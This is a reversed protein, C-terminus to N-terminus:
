APIGRLPLCAIIWFFCLDLASKYAQCNQLILLFEPSFRQNIVMMLQDIMRVKLFILNRKKQTLVCVCLELRIWREKIDRKDFDEILHFLYLRKLLPLLFCNKSLTMQERFISCNFGSTVGSRVIIFICTLHFSTRNLQLKRGRDLSPPPLEDYPVDKLVSM